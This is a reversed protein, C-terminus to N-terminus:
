SEVQYSSKLKELYKGTTYGIISRYKRRNKVFDSFGIAGYFAGANTFYDLYSSLDKNVRSLLIQFIYIARRINKGKMTYDKSFFFPHKEKLYEKYLSRNYKSELDVSNWFNIYDKRWFPHVSESGVFEFLRSSNIIYKSQRNVYEFNEYARVFDNHDVVKKLEENEHLVQHLVNNSVYDKKLSFHKVMIREIFDDYKVREDTTKVVYNLHGGSIFDGTHGPMFVVDSIDFKEKIQYLALIELMHPMSAYNSAYKTYDQYFTSNFIKFWEKNSYKIFFWEYGAKEAMKKSVLSDPNNPIGYTYCVVDKVGFRKLMALVLRSDNGGSLPLFIKKGDIYNLTAEFSRNLSDDLKNILQDRSDIFCNSNIHYPEYYTEKQLINNEWSIYNGPNVQFINEFLTKNDLVYGSYEFEALSTKSLKSDSIFHDRVNDTIRVENKNYRYFLSKKRTADVGFKVSNNDKNHIIFYFDGDIEKLFDDLRHLLDQAVQDYQITQNKNQFFGSIYVDFHEFQILRYKTFLEIQIM